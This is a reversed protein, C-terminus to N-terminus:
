LHWGLEEDAAVGSAVNEQLRLRFLTWEFDEECSLLTPGTFASLLPLSSICLLRRGFRMAPAWQATGAGLTITAIKFQRPGTRSFVFCRHNLLICRDALCRSPGCALLATVCLLCVASEERQNLTHHSSFM